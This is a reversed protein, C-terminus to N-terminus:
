KKAESKKQYYNPEIYRLVLSFKNAEEVIDSQEQMTNRPLRAQQGLDYIRMDLSELIRQREVRSGEARGDYNGIAYGLLHAATGMATIAIIRRWNTTNTMKNKGIVGAKTQKKV